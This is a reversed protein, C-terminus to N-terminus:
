GWGHGVMWVPGFVVGWEGFEVGGEFEEWSADEDDGGGVFASAEAEADVEDLGGGGFWGGDGDREGFALGDRREDAVGSGEADADGGLLVGRECAAECEDFVVGVVVVLGVVGEFGEFGEGEGGACGEEWAGGGGEVAADGHVEVDFGVVLEVDGFDDVCADGVGGGGGGEAGAGERGGSSVGGVDGVAVLLGSCVAGLWSWRRGRCGVRLM